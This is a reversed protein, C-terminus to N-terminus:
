RTSPTGLRAPHRRALSAATAPRSRSEHQRSYADVAASAAQRQRSILRSSVNARRAVAAHAITRGPLQEPQNTLVKHGVGAARDEDKLALQSAQRGTAPSQFCATVGTAPAVTNRPTVAIKKGPIRQVDVASLEPRRGCHAPDAAQGSSGSLSGASRRASSSVRTRGRDSVMREKRIPV